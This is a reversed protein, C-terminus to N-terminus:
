QKRELIKAQNWFDDLQELTFQQWDGGQQRVQEEVYAFRNIFKGNTQNLSTEPEVGLFRALNVATFLLDGLEAAIAAQDGAHAAAQLELWEEKLKDWVPGISHWDFGVKAAKSQLKYARMLSPLGTPVGDLINHREHGKEQKKIAEWNVVVEAADRVAIEGFVHPHRRVMKATVEDVVDQMTFAGSEEAIRAHFVIQLLLDGLEECLGHADESDIAELVEYVEEVMYRRLSSHTQEIDWLCGDPSRLRAMVDILPQLSFTQSCRPRVPVYLSTLHDIAPIRDLEYLALTRIEEDPLSLNRILTVAYDDPYLEMLALKTESAVQRNYVQTVILNTSLDRPLNDIDSSDVITVGEIPDLGLRVYLTELFSMAPLIRVAVSCAAAQQRIISVTKEAVLPSGPVAYVPQEGQQARAILDAAIAQYVEAFSGGREYIHDYSSFVIGREALEAVTPHKATRLYVPRGSQLMDWTEMTLLSFAGPGLGVIVIEKM